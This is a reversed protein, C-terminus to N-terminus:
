SAQCQKVTHGVFLVLPFLTKNMACFCQANTICAGKRSRIASMAFTEKASYPKWDVACPNGRGKTIACCRQVLCLKADYVLESLFDFANTIQCQNIAGHVVLGALFVVIEGQYFSRLSYSSWWVDPNISELVTVIADSLWDTELLSLTLSSVNGSTQTHNNMSIKAAIM